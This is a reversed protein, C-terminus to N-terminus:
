ILTQNLHGSRLNKRQFYCAKRVNDVQKNSYGVSFSNSLNKNLSTNIEKLPSVPVSSSGGSKIPTKVKKNKICKDKSMNKSIIPQIINKKNTEKLKQQNAKEIISKNKSPEEVKIKKIQKVPENVKKRKEARKCKCCELIQFNDEEYITTM